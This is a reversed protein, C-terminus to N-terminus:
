TSLINYIEDKTCGNRFHYRVKERNFGNYTSWMSVSTGDDFRLTNNKNNNQEEITAWRCNGPEYNGDNDERDLSMDEPRDGMDAYFNEFKLWRDYVTIGRGGYSKFRKNNPNTCRQIMSNWISRELSGTKGHTTHIERCYCGCSTTHKRQLHNSSVVIIKGCDCKCLWTLENGNSGKCKIISLRGFPAHGRLDKGKGILLLQQIEPDDPISEHLVKELLFIFRKVGLKDHGFIVRIYSNKINTM